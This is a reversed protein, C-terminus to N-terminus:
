RGQWLDRNPRSDPFRRDQRGSERQLWKSFVSQFRAVGQTQVGNKNNRRRNSCIENGIALDNGVVQCPLACSVENASRQWRCLFCTHSYANFIDPVLKQEARELHPLEDSLEVAFPDSRVEVYAISKRRAIRFMPDIDQALLDMTHMQLVIATRNAGNIAEYLNEGTVYIPGQLPHARVM